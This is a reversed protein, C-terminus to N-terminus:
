EFMLDEVTVFSYGEKQLEDIIALAATVSSDYQDHMLIISNERVKALIRSTICNVNDSCWDLPDINWMVPFMNLETEFSKDWSCYPPRVFSVEKGTIDYLIQNTAILEQRFSEKNSKTLQLHSYTHNGILHGEENMRRIIDPMAEAKEGLVFFTAKAHRELLGDLLQETYFEHPGDDFTLAVRMNERNRDAGAQSTEAQAMAESFGSVAVDQTQIKQLLRNYVHSGLMCYCGIRLVSSGILVVVLLKKWKRM